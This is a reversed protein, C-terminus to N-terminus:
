LNWDFGIPPHRAGFIEELNQTLSRMNDSFSLQLPERKLIKLLRGGALDSIPSFSGTLANRNVILL